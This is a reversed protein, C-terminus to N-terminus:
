IVMESIDDETLSPHIAGIMAGFEVRNIAGSGDTDFHKAFSAWFERDM